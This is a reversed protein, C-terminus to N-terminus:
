TRTLAVSRFLFPLVVTQVISVSLLQFSLCCRSTAVFVDRHNDGPQCRSLVYSQHALFFIPLPCSLRLTPFTSPPWVSEQHALLTSTSYALCAANVLQIALHRRCIHRQRSSHHIATPIM